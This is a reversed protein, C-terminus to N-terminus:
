TKLNGGQLEKIRNKDSRMIGGLLSQGRRPQWVYSAQVHAKIFAKVNLGIEFQYVM